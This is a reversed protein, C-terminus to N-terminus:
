QLFIDGISIWLPYSRKNKQAATVINKAAAAQVQVALVHQV